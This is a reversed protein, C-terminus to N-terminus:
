AKRIVCCHQMENNVPPQITAHPFLGRMYDASYFVHFTRQEEPPVPVIDETGVYLEEGNVLVSWDADRGREYLEQLEPTVLEGRERELRWRFNDGDFHGPWAVYRPAIFTFALVGGPALLRELQPVLDLMDARTTNPFVSYATIVDFRREMEPLPLMPTGHPNFFFCYRDYFLWESQPYRERGKQVSEEDIDLCAYRAPDITSGPDRLMNGINGGFDLVHKDRWDSEGIQLAFYTFQNQKTSIWTM